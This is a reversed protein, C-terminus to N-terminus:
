CYFDHIVRRWVSEREKEYGLFFGDDKGVSKGGVGGVWGRRELGRSRLPAGEKGAKADKGLLRAM